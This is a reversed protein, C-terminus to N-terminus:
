LVIGDAVAAVYYSHRMTLEYLESVSHKSLVAQSQRRVDRVEARGGFSQQHWQLNRRIYVSYEVKTICETVSESRDQEQEVSGIHEDNGGTMTDTSMRVGVVGLQIYV